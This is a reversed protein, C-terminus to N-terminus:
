VTNVLTHAHVELTDHVSERKCFFLCQHTVCALQIHQVGQQLPELHITVAHENVRLHCAHNVQQLYQKQTHSQPHTHTHINHAVTHINYAKAHTQTHACTPTLLSSATDHHVMKRTMVKKSHCCESFVMKWCCFFLM